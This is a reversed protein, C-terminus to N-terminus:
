EPGVKGGRIAAHKWLWPWIMPEAVVGAFGLSEFHNAPHSCAPDQPAMGHDATVVFLTEELVGRQELVDLVRGIRRDGEALADGLAESHPGYDHGVGDTLTELGLLIRPVRHRRATAPM